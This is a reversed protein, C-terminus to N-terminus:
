IMKQQDQSSGAGDSRDCSGPPTWRRQCDTRAQTRVQRGSSRRDKPRTETHRLVHARGGTIRRLTSARRFTAATANVSVAGVAKGAFDLDFRVFGPERDRLRRRRGHHYAMAQATKRATLTIDVEFPCLLDPGSGSLHTRSIWASLLRRRHGPPGNRPTPGRRRRAAAGIDPVGRPRRRPRHCGRRCWARARADGRLRARTPSAVCTSGSSTSGQHDGSQELSLGAAM